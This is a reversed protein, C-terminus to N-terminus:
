AVMSRSMEGSAAPENWQEYWAQFTLVTWLHFSWDNASSELHQHWLRQVLEVNFVGERKLRVPDLLAEAWPRLEGRLWAGIPVGFGMKPRDFLARPVHRELIQRLIWKGRGDKFHVDTPIQWAARAVEPDLMPVRTELAVAMAARDVKVLVDDPMYLCTDVYMMHRRQDHDDPLWQTMDSAVTPPERGGIILEAPNRFYSDMATYLEGFSDARLESQKDCMREVMDTKGPWKGALQGAKAVTQLSWAPATGLVCALVHRLPHPIRQLTAWRALAIPYRSYGGFLEDGADGSLSVTVTRRALQSVLFTPVQSSDAMPEDYIRALKPIVDLTDRAGVILETHQTGIHQAVAKAFPAENFEKEAFGISFTQVARSSSKQMLAVVVSSDIGGSLFAGVPVDAVMQQGISKMLAAEVRDTMEAPSGNMPKAASEAMVARTNWYCRETMSFTGGQLRVELLAGALVKRVQKFVSYPAPIYGHRAFLTLADRDLEAAWAPHQRMAKLESGFLVTDNFQGYYLPKEGFRDRALSLLKNSADWVGLAFMGNARRLTEEVGWQEVAALLVETDSTSKFTHGLGQLQAKLLLYNYIEGNYTITFRGSASTMPQHGLPSLDVISLRRHGFGIGTDTDFWIGQDDPGRHAIAEAMHSLCAAAADASLRNSDLFGAIGCM